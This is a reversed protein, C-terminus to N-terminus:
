VLIQAQRNEKTSKRINTQLFLNKERLLEIVGGWVNELSSTDLADVLYETLAREDMNQRSGKTRNNLKRAVVSSITLCPRSLLQKVEDTLWSDM